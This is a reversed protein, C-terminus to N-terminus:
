SGYVSDLGFELTSDDYYGSYSLEATRLSDKLENNMNNEDAVSEPPLSPTFMNQIRSLAEDKPDRSYVVSPIKDPCSQRRNSRLMTMRGDAGQEHDVDGMSSRRQSKARSDDVLSTDKTPEAEDTLHYQLQNSIVDSTAQRRYGFNQTRGPTDNGTSLRRQNQLSVDLQNTEDELSDMVCRIRDYLKRSIVTENRVNANAKDDVRLRDIECLLLVIRSAMSKAEQKENTLKTHLDKTRDILLTILADKKQLARQLESVRAKLHDAEHLTSEEEEAYHNVVVVKPIDSSHMPAGVAGDASYVNRQGNSHNFNMITFKPLEARSHTTNM